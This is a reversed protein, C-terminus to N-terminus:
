FIEIGGGGGGGFVRVCEGYFRLALKCGNEFIVGYCLAFLSIM